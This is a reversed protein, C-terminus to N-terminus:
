TDSRLQSDICSHSCACLRCLGGGEKGCVHVEARTWPRLIQEIRGYVVAVLGEPRQQLGPLVRQRAAGSWLGAVWGPHVGQVLPQRVQRVLWPLKFDSLGDHWLHPM